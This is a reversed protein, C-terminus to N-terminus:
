DDTSSAPSGAIVWGADCRRIRGEAELRRLSEGLRQNNVRLTKRLADRTHPTGPLARLIAVIQEELPLTALQTTNHDATPRHVIELHIKSPDGDNDVLRLRIPEPAPASRHEIHLMLQDDHRVLYANDDSWAWLDGSGRLAQGLRPHARKTFHHVLLVALRYRRQLHRLFGLFASIEQSSNEDAGWIRVLPDLVLLKPRQKEITAKLRGCDEGLHLQLLPVAIFHLDLSDLALERHRCIAEVRQRIERQRDEALFALVPGPDEVPFRDLCPTNSAVSIALDLGLWTKLSKPLGALFGVGQATWLDRVLWRPTGMTKEGLKSAQRVPLPDVAM